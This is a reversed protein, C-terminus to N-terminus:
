SFDKKNKTWLIALLLVVPAYLILDAIPNKIGKEFETLTLFEIITSIVGIVVLTTYAILAWKKQARINNILVFLGIVILGFLISTLQLSIVSFGLLAAIPGISSSSTGVFMQLATFLGGILGLFGFAYLIQAAIPPNPKKQKVMTSGTPQNIAENVQVPDWGANILQQQIQQLNVGQAQQSRIYESLQNNQSDM